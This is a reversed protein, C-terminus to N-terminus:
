ITIRRAAKSSLWSREGKRDAQTSRDSCAGCLGIFEIRIRHVELERRRRRLQAAVQRPAPMDVDCISACRECTFHHHPSVNGDYRLPGDASAVVEIEGQEVLVDLNRYVTGLSMRPLEALLTQHLEIASPHMGTARLVELLRKRAHTRNRRTPSEPEGADSPVSRSMRRSYRSM